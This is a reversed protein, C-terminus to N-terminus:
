PQAGKRQRRCAQSAKFTAPRFGVEYPYDAFCTERNGYTDPSHLLEPRDGVPVLSIRPFYSSEGSM